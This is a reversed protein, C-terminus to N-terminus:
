RNLLRESGHRESVDLLIQACNAYGDICAVEMATQGHRDTLSPDAHFDLLLTVCAARGSRCALHLLTNDDVDGTNARSLCQLPWARSTIMRLRRARPQPTPPRYHHASMNPDGGRSRILRELSGVDGADAASFIPDDLGDDDSDM